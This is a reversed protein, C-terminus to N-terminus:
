LQVAATLANFLLNTLDVRFAPTEILWAAAGERGSWEITFDLAIRQRYRREHNKSWSSTIPYRCTSKTEVKMTANLRAAQM